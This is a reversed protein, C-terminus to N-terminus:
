ENIASWAQASQVISIMQHGGPVNKGKFTPYTTSVVLTDTTQLILIATKTDRTLCYWM